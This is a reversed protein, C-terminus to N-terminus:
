KLLDGVDGKLLGEIGEGDSGLLEYLKKGFRAATRPHRLVIVPVEKMAFTKIDGGTEKNKDFGLKLETLFSMLDDAMDQQVAQGKMNAQRRVISLAKADSVRCFVWFGAWGAAFACLFVFLLLFDM